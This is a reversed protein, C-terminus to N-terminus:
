RNRRLSVYDGTEVPGVGHWRAGSPDVARVYRRRGAMDQWSATVRALEGGTWTTVRKGDSSVYAVFRESTAMEARQAEDACAYCLKRGDLTTAYGTGIGTPEVSHGCDGITTTM